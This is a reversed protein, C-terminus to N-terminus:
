LVVEVLGAALYERAVERTPVEFIEGPKVTVRGSRRIEAPVHEPRPYFERTSVAGNPFQKIKLQVRAM